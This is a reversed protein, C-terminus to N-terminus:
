KNEEANTDISKNEDGKVSKKSKKSKGSYDFIDERGKTAKWRDLTAQPIDYEEGKVTEQRVKVGQLKFKFGSKLATVLPM